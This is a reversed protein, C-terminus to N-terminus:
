KNNKQLIIVAFIVGGFAGALALWSSWMNSQGMRSDILWGVGYGVIPTGIIGYAVTLGVGLSRGTDASAMQTEKEVKQRQTDRRRADNLRSDLEDMRQDFGNHIKSIEERSAAQKAAIDDELEALRREAASKEDLDSADPNNRPEDNM